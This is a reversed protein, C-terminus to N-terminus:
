AECTKGGICEAGRQEPFVAKQQDDLCKFVPFYPRPQDQPWYSPPYCNPSLANAHPDGIRSGSAGPPRSTTVSQCPGYGSGDDVVYVNQMMGLDEHTLIHCHFVYEGWYDWFRNRIKVYGPEILDGNEDLEGPPIGITDYWVGDHVDFQKLKPDGATGSANPNYIEVVQFPNVHIHFPHILNTYNLLIWEECTGLKVVQVTEQRYQDSKYSFEGTNYQPVQIGQGKDNLPLSTPEYSVYGGGTKPTYSQNNIEFTRPTPAAQTNYAACGQSKGEKDINFVIPRCYISGDPNKLLQDATIPQLYDPSRGPIVYNFPIELSVKSQPAKGDCTPCSPPSQPAQLADEVKIHALVQVKQPGASPFSFASGRVTVEEKLLVYDGPQTLQILFDARNAPSLNIEKLAKPRQGYFSIGDVAILYMYEDSNPNYDQSTNALKHLRLKIFGRPTATANVFRWRHVENNCMTLTPQYYGNVTFQKSSQGCDYVSQDSPVQYQPGNPDKKLMPINTVPVPNIVEQLLWVLDRDVLPRMGVPHGQQDSCLYNLEYEGQEEIILVGSMGDVVHLTTSGHKHPHYWHTGPAHFTPLAVCYLHEGTSCDQGRPPLEFLVDDSSLVAQDSDTGCIPQLAPGLSLPSVHLGHFHLNTTNFQNPRDIVGKDGTSPFPIQSPFITGPNPPLHNVLKLHLTNQSTDCPKLRFTPGPQFPHDLSPTFAGQDQNHDVYRYYRGAVMEQTSGSNTVASYIGEVNLITPQTSTGLDAIPPQPFGTGTWTQLPTFRTRQGASQAQATSPWALGAIAGAGLTLFHRRGMEWSSLEPGPDGSTTQPNQHTM